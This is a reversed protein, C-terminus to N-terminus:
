KKGKTMGGKKYRVPSKVSDKSVTKVSTKKYEPAEKKALSSSETKIKSALPKNVSSTKTKISGGMQKKDLKKM